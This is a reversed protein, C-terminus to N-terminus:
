RTSRRHPPHQTTAFNVKVLHPSSLTLLYKGYCNGYVNGACYTNWPLDGYCDIARPQALRPRKGAPEDGGAGAGEICQAPPPVTTAAAAAAPAKRADKTSSSSGAAAAASSAKKRASKAPAVVLVNDDKAAHAKKAARAAAWKANSHM